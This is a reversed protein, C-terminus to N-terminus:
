GGPARLSLWTPDLVTAPGPLAGGACRAAVVYRQDGAGAPLPVVFAIQGSAADIAGAVRAAVAWGDAAPNVAVRAARDAGARPWLPDEWITLTADGYQDLTLGARPTVALALSWTDGAEASIAPTDRVTPM